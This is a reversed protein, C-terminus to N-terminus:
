LWRGKLRTWEDLRRTWEDRILPDIRAAAPLGIMETELSRDRMRDDAASRARDDSDEALRRAAAPAPDDNVDRDM